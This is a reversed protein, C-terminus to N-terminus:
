PVSGREVVWETGQGSVAAIHDFDVDYHLVVLEHREAQAQLWM